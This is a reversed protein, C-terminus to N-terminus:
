LVLINIFVEFSLKTVLIFITYKFFYCYYCSFGLVDHQLVLSYKRTLLYNRKQNAISKKRMMKRKRTYEKLVLHLAGNAKNLGLNPKHYMTLALNVGISFTIGNM